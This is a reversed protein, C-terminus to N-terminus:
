QTQVSIAGLPELGLNGFTSITNFVTPGCQSADCVRSMTYATAMAAPVGIIPILSALGTPVDVMFITIGQEALATPGGNRIAVYLEYADLTRGIWPFDIKELLPQATSVITDVVRPVEPLPVYSPSVVQFTSNAITWDIGPSTLNSIVQTQFASTGPPLPPQFPIVVPQPTPNPSSPPTSAPTITLNNGFYALVYNSSLALTGQKIAYSGVSEGSTRTLSGTFRDSGVLNGLTVQYTLPPDASGTMKTQANATVTVPRQTITLNSDVFNIRYGAPLSLTGEGIDYIGVNEGPIRKLTGSFTASGLNGSVITYTFNPDSNGYIKTQPDADITILQL